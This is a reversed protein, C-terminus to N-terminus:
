FTKYLVEYCGLGLSIFSKTLQDVVQSGLKLNHCGVLLCYYSLLKAM